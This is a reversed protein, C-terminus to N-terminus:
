SAPRLITGFCLSTKFKSVKRRSTPFKKLAWFALFRANSCLAALANWIGTVAMVNIKSVLHAVLPSNHRLRNTFLVGAIIWAKSVRALSTFLSKSAAVLVFALPIRLGRICILVITM